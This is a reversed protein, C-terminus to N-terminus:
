LSPRVRHMALLPMTMIVKVGRKPMVSRTFSNRPSVSISFIRFPGHRDALSAHGILTWSSVDSLSTSVPQIEGIRNFFESVRGSRIEGAFKKLLRNTDSAM